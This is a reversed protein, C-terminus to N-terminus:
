NFLHKVEGRGVFQSLIKYNNKEFRIRGAVIAPHIGLQNSLRVVDKSPDSAELDVKKWYEKPILANQAMQDAEKERKDEKEIRSHRPELEDIIINTEELTLHKELHALEHLLCFWFNDIRDYRL